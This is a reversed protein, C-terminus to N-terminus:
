IVAYARMQKFFTTFVVKIVVIAPIAFLMGGFGFLIAGGMVGFVVILPHLSVARGLVFPQFIANDLLQVLGVALLIAVTLNDVTIWPLLPDVEEAMIAYLLGVVLGIAPGLFPIANALGAIIGIAAAWDMPLGVLRLFVALFSGVLFCEMATGRLYNGLADNIRDFLTLTMEFFRNPVSEICTKKIQGNDFLLILFVLPTVLWLSLANLVALLIPASNGGGTRQKDGTTSVAASDAVKKRVKRQGRDRKLNAQHYQWYRESVREVGSEVNGEYLHRFILADSESLALAQDLRDVMPQLERGALQYFLNGNKGKGLGMYDVFKENLKYRVRVQLELEQKKDSVLNGGLNIITVLCFCFLAFLTIISWMRSFGKGCLYAVLPYSIYAIVMGIVTPLILQRLAWILFISVVAVLAASVKYVMRRRQQRVELENDHLYIKM